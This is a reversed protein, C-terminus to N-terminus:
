RATSPKTGEPSVGFRAGAWRFPATLNAWGAQFGDSNVATHYYNELSKGNWRLQGILTLVLLFVLLRGSFKLFGMPAIIRM